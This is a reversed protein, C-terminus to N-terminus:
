TLKGLHQKVRGMSGRQMVHWMAMNGTHTILLRSQSVILNVALLLISFNIRNKLEPHLHIAIPRNTVPIEKIWFSNEKLEAHLYDRVILEDTQILVRSSFQNPDICDRYSALYISPDIMPIETHKDTGRYCICDYGQPILHYKNALNYFTGKVVQSPTFFMKLYKKINDFDIEHYDGHHNPFNIIPLRNFDESANKEEFLIKVPNDLKNDKFLEMGKGPEIRDVTLNRRRCEILDFLLVTLESFLGAKTTRNISLINIGAKNKFLVCYKLIDICKGDLERPSM